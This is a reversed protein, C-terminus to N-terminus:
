GATIRPAPNNWLRELTTYKVIKKSLNRMLCVGVPVILDPRPTGASQARRALAHHISTSDIDGDTMYPRGGRPLPKRPAEALSRPATMYVAESHPRQGRARISFAFRTGIM